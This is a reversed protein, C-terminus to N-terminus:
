SSLLRRVGLVRAIPFGAVTVGDGQNGGLLHITDATQGAFFGVHGPANLVDAGPQLGDGRQLIVVDFRNRADKLEVPVGVTLWSRALASKSRPLRLEWAIGNVFASCWPTEDPTDPGFGCLTLWFQILPHNQGTGALEKIGAYRQALDFASQIM